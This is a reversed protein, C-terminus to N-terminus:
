TVYAHKKIITCLTNIDEKTNFSHICIRLREQGQPVTPAFLPYTIIGSDKLEQHANILEAQDKFQVLQIPSGNEAYKHIGSSRFYAINHSLLETLEPKTALYQYACKIRLLHLDSPATSYIFPAAYNVLYNKLLRSGLIAAGELGMAKGYTVVTALVENQLGCRHVIGKRFVGITHAEDVILGANYQRCLQVAETLPAFNGDVSYLSEIAVVVNGTAKNLLAELHTLDNHRFKWKKARSLHCGDHVSRHILEDVIITDARGSICSFLSLNAKYGSSFFLAAEVGHAAAIFSETTEAIASNGSILRSGTSGSLCDPQEKVANLLLQRFDPDGSLGLYDNSQFDIGTDYQKLSRYTHHEQRTALAKHWQQILAKM